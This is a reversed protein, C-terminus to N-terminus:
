KRDYVTKRAKLELSKALRQNRSTGLSSPSKDNPPYRVKQPQVYRSTVRANAKKLFSSRVLSRSLMMSTYLLMHLTKFNFFIWVIIMMWRMALIPKWALSPTVLKFNSSLPKPWSLMANTTNISKGNSIM